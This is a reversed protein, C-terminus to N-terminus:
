AYGGGDTADWVRLLRAAFARSVQETVTMVFEDRADQKEATWLDDDGGVVIGSYIGMFTDDPHDKDWLAEATEDILEYNQAMQEWLIDVAREIPDSM